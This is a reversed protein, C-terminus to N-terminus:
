KHAAMGDQYGREFAQRARERADSPLNSIKSDLSENGTTFGSFERPVGGKKAMGEGYSGRTGEHNNQTGYNALNYDGQSGDSLIGYGHNDYDGSSNYEAGRMAYRSDRDRTGTRADGMGSGVTSGSRKNTREFSSDMANKGTGSVGVIRDFDTNRDIGPDRFGASREVNSEDMGRNRHGTMGRTDSSDVDRDMRTEYESPGPKGYGSKGGFRSKGSRDPMPSTADGSHSDKAGVNGYGASHKSHYKNPDYKDEGYKQDRHGYNQDGHGYNQGYKDKGYQEDFKDEGQDYMAERSAYNGLSAFDELPAYTGSESGSHDFRARIRNKAEGSATSGGMAKGAAKDYKGVDKTGHLRGFRDSFGM